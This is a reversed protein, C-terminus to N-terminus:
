RLQLSVRALVGGASPSLSVSVRQVDASRLKAFMFAELASGAM